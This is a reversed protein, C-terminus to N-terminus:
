LFCQTGDQEGRDSSVESQPFLSGRQLYGLPSARTVFFYYRWDSAVLVQHRYVTVHSFKSTFERWNVRVSGVAEVSM